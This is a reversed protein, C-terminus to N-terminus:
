HIFGDYGGKPNEFDGILSLVNRWIFVNEETIANM